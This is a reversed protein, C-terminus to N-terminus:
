SQVSKRSIEITAYSLRAVMLYIAVDLCFTYHGQLENNYYIYQCFYNSSSAVKM